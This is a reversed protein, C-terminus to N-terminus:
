SKVGKREILNTGFIINPLNNVLPTAQEDRWARHHRGCTRCEYWGYMPWMPENHMLRCWVIGIRAMTGEVGKIGTRLGPSRERKQSGNQGLNRADVAIEVSLRNGRAPSLQPVDADM